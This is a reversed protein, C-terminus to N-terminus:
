IDGGGWLVSFAECHILVSAFSAMDVGEPVIYDQRGTESKVFGLLVAGNTATRGTAEKVSQPSLFVKLDPGNVTKFNEAFRIITTGNQEIVSYGGKLRKSKRIFEGEAKVTGNAAVTEVAVPSLPNAYAIGAHTAVLSVSSLSYVALGILSNKFSSLNKM